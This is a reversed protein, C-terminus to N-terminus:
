ELKFNITTDIMMKINLPSITKDLQQTPSVILPTHSKRSVEILKEVYTKVDSQSGFALLSMDLNGVFCVENSYHKFLEFINVGASPELSQIADFGIGIFSRILDTIYGDSHIIVMGKNSHIDNVIKSYPTFFLNDWIDTPIFTRNKYGCDDAILFICAEANLLQSILKEIYKAFFEIVYKVFEIDKKLMKAFYVFGMSQWTKEFLGPLSLVPILNEKARLIFTSLSRISKKSPLNLHNWSDIVAKNKFMGDWFYWDNKILRGWGDVRMQDNINYGGKGRRFDWLSIADFGMNYILEYDNNNLNLNKNTHNLTYRTKFNNMFESRPYGTCYLPINNTLEGSLVRIFNRSRDFM